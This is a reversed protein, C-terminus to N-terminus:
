PQFGLRRRQEAWRCPLAGMRKLRRPTLDIPQRGGLIAEVIDPTLFALPLTRSIDGADRDHLRALDRVSAARGQALDDIWRHADAFLTILKKDPSPCRSGAARIVLKAEVGRRKLQIPMVLSFPEESGSATGADPEALLGILGTRKIDIHISDAHLIIRHVLASLLQHQREPPGDKLEDAAAAVYGTVRRLHDPPIGNLHLAEVLRLEDSLFDRVTQLVVAELERAPLRWGGTASGTAHMLRKSIYYRYRRGRKNAHTPCLRDGTEDYVLGTLLSPAKANTASRRSAANATLQRQVAEFTERDIIADHRGPYTAGKHPVEGVYLPNSLLCYLHGRTFPGGGTVRGSSQHRRKTVLGQRDAAEKLRQVTGLERYLRFLTRVMEAEAPNTMLERDRLDYGLPVVGGMWLGKRKSAAIKDRIREGTVEREFQAFSLLVNLTLRGMSTTTNFQQTVSVFSVCKADFIEVIKSFDALARTLRDVKYVVVVDIKGGGIDSLLRRLAPRDMTAGSLGGDDYREYLCSWGEHKQSKIFAECAERQADLSNFGQELGEESSKRTYIACRRRNTM